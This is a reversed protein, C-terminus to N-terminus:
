DYVEVKLEETDSNEKKNEEDSDDDEMEDGDDEDDDEDNGDLCDIIQSCFNQREMDGTFDM